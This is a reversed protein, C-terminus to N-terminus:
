APRLRALVADTVASTSLSGGLDPTTEGALVTAEIASSLERSPALFGLAELLMEVCLLTAV